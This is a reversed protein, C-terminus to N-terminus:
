RKCRKRHHDWEGGQRVCDRFAKEQEPTMRKTLVRVIQPFAKSAIEKGLDAWFAPSRMVLFAASGVGLLVAVVLATVIIGESM